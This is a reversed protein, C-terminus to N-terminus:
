LHGALGSTKYSNQPHLNPYEDQCLLHDVWQTIEGDWLEDKIMQIKLM